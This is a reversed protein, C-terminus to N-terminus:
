SSAGMERAVQVHLDRYRASVDKGFLPDPASPIAAAVKAWDEEKMLQAAQPLIDTEESDIHNRYYVIYTAAVAEVTERAIFADELIDELYKSRFLM